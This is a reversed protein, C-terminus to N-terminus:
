PDQDNEDPLTADTTVLFSYFKPGDERVSLELRHMGPTLHFSVFEGKTNNIPHWARDYTKENRMGNTDLITNPKLDDVRVFCSKGCSDMWQANLFVYFDDEREIKLDYVAKGPVKGYVNKVGEQQEYGCSKEWGDPCELWTVRRGEMSEKKLLVVTGDPAKDELEKPQACQLLHKEVSVVKPKPNGGQKGPDTSPTTKGPDSSPTPGPDTKTGRGALVVVLVVVIIIAFAIVGRM